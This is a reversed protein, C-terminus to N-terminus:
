ELKDIKTKPTPKPKPVYNGKNKSEPHNYVTVIDGNENTIVTNGRSDQYRWTVKGTIPDIEKVRKKSNNDVISDVVEKTFGRENAREAGHETFVRGRPTVDGKKIVDKNKQEQAKKQEQLKRELDAKEAPTLDGGVVGPNASWVVGAVVVPVAVIAEIGTAVWGGLTVAVGNNGSPDTYRLPNNSVYTYRNLSLPNDVQGKYTDQSIFRGVSPDYYRARLYYLKTEPDYVEGSYTFPNNMGETQSLVNGWIDYDYSNM